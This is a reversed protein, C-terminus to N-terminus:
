SAYIKEIEAKYKENIFKRKPKMTPTLEGTDISMDRPLLEFKKIQEWNGFNQNLRTVEENIKAKVKDMAVVAAPMDRPPKVGESELWDYLYAFSPVILAGPFKENDGVVVVQEIFPSEKLKNEIVQPAIYKGGSTKWMEKKRDTIRLFGQADVVGIDGTHFYGEADIVTRTMEENKYYGMMVNPGKYCIEGDEAIKILGNNIVTGVHGVRLEGPRYGSVSIVPSTETLGYGEQLRVGIANYFRCLRVQLAASGSCTTIVRDLGAKARIKSYVLKDAIRLKIGYFFGNKGDPEWRLALRSAWAFIKGSLGGKAAGGAQVKDYVKELLRPVSTFVHPRVEKLNDPLKEISEAYYISIGAYTYLYLIMREFIHSLPLFTLAAHEKRVPLRDMSSLVNSVINEHSLMVGKPQGTTGSTYIITALQKPKVNDQIAKLSFRGDSNPNVKMDKYLTAGRLERFSFVHVLSPVNPKCVMVKDLMEQTQVFICKVEAHNLIFTIDEISNTPYIPVNIGGMKLIGLDTITWEYSNDSMIAIMDGPQLGLQLLGLAIADSVEMVSDTSHKEWIGNSKSVLADPKPYHAQQYAFLDFLRKVEM